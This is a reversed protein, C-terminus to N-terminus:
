LGKSKVSVAKKGESVREAALVDIKGKTEKKLKAVAKFFDEGSCQYTGPKGDKVYNFKYSNM